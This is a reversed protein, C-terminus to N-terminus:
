PNQSATDPSGECTATAGQIPPGLDGRIAAVRLNWRGLWLFQWLVECVAFVANIELARWAVSACLPEWLVIRNPTQRRKDRSFKGDSLTVKGLTAELLEPSARATRLQRALKTRGPTNRTYDCIRSRRHFYCWGMMITFDWCQLIYLCM